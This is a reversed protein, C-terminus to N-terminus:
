IEHEHTTLDVFSDSSGDYQFMKGTKIDFYWGLVKLTGEDHRKKIFDFSMANQLSRKICEKECLERKEEYELEVPLTNKVDAMLEIWGKIFSNEAHSFDTDLLSKIGGCNSHGMVIINDVQLHKTAYELAASTGHHTDFTSEFPPLINAVNRVVFIDGYNAHTIIAPDVRSDSCAIVLTSPTQSTKLKKLLHSDDDKYEHYFKQYGKIIKNISM